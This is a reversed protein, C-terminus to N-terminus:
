DMLPNSLGHKRFDAFDELVEAEWSKDGHSKQGRFIIYIDRAEETRELFM